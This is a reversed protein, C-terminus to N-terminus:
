STQKEKRTMYVAGVAAAFLLVSTLEFVLIHNRFLEIAMRAVSGGPKLGDSPAFGSGSLAMWALYVSGASLLVGAGTSLASSKRFGGLAPGKLNLLMVVFVFLVMVAGMYIIVQFLALVYAGMLAFLGAAAIMMVLLAMVSNAPNRMCIVLLASGVALISLVWFLVSDM